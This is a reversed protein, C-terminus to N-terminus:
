LLVVSSAKTVVGSQVIKCYIGRHERILTPLKTDFASLHTCISCKETIQLKAEGIQIMEGLSLQHPDFSLLINEGLSGQELAIGHQQAIDYAINGVIMVSREVNKGAFKDNKIGHGEILELHKVRPRVPGKFEKPASFLEILHLMSGDM